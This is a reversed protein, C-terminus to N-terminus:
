GNKHEPRTFIKSSIKPLEDPRLFLNLSTLYLGLADRSKEIIPKMDNWYETSAEDSAKVAVSYEAKDGSEWARTEAILTKKIKWFKKKMVKQAELALLLYEEAHVRVDASLDFFVVIRQYSKILQIINDLFSEQFAVLPQGDDVIRDGFSVVLNNYYIDVALDYYALLCSRQERFYEDRDIKIEAIASRVSEIILTIDGTDEKVALNEGKKSFYAPFYSRLLLGIIIM